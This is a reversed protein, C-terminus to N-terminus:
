VEGVVSGEERVSTHVMNVVKIAWRHRETLMSVGTLTVLRKLAEHKWTSVMVAHAKRAKSCYHRAKTTSLAM